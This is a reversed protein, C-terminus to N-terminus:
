GNLAAITKDIDKQIKPQNKAFWSAFDTDGKWCLAGIGDCIRDLSVPIYYTLTNFIIDLSRGSEEDRAVKGNLLVDYFAPVITDQSAWALTELVAGTRSLDVSTVPVVTFYPNGGMHMYNEQVEDYKAGPLIGFDTEMTRLYQTTGMTQSYFLAKEEIFYDTNKSSDCFPSKFGPATMIESVRAMREIQEPRDLTYIPLDNEDKAVSVIGGIGVLMGQVGVNTWSVYGYRDSESYGGDGDLDSYVTTGMEQMRDITWTGDNVLKYPDELGFNKRIEKNFFLGRVGDYHTTDFLSICYYNKGGLSQSEQAGHVWWPMSLDINPIEAFDVACGKTLLTLADSMVALVADFSDDGAQIAKAATNTASSDSIESIKVGLKEETMLNRAYIADNVAEGNQEEATVVFTTMWDSTNGNLFRFEYGGYDTGEPIAPMLRATTVAATEASAGAATDDAAEASPTQAPQSPSDGSAEGCASLACSSLIVGAAILTTIRKLVSM